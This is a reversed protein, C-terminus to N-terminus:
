VQAHTLTRSCQRLKTGAKENAGKIKKDKTNLAQIATTQLYTV